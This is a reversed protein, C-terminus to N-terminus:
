GLAKCFKTCQHYSNSYTTDCNSVTQKSRTSQRLMFDSFLREFFMLGNEFKHQTQLGSRKLLASNIQSTIIGKTLVGSYTSRLHFCFHCHLVFILIIAYKMKSMSLEIHNSMSFQITYHPKPKFNIMYCFGILFETSLTCTQVRYLWLFLNQFPKEM